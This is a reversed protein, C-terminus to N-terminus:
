DALNGIQFLPKNLTSFFTSQKKLFAANIIM